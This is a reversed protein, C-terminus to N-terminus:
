SILQVQKEIEDREINKTKNITDAMSIIDDYMSGKIRRAMKNEGLQLGLICEITIRENKFDYLPIRFIDLTSVHDSNM